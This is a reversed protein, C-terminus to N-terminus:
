PSCSESVQWVEAVRRRGPPRSAPTLTTSPPANTSRYPPVACDTVGVCARSSAVARSSSAASASDATGAHARGQEGLRTRGGGHPRGRGLGHGHGHVPGRRRAGGGAPDGALRALDGAGRADR